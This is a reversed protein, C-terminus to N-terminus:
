VTVLSSAQSVFRLRTYTRLADEDKNRLKKKRRCTRCLLVETMEGGDDHTDPVYESCCERDGEGREQLHGVCGPRDEGRWDTQGALCWDTCLCISEKTWPINDVM